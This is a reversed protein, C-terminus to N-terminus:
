SQIGDQQPVILSYGAYAEAPSTIRNIRALQTPEIQYKQSLSYFSEGVDIVKSTLIGTINELGPIILETGIYMLNPDISPNAQILQDTSIGFRSAIEGLTDGSQVIYIPGESQAKVTKGSFLVSILIIFILFKNHTKL